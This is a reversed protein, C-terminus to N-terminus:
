DLVWQEQESVLQVLNMVLAMRWAGGFVKLQALLYGDDLGLWFGKSVGLLFGYVLGFVL